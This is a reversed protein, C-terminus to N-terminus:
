FLQLEVFRVAPNECIRYTTRVEVRARWHGGTQSGTGLSSTHVAFYPVLETGCRYEKISYLLHSPLLDNVFHTTKTLQDHFLIKTQPM